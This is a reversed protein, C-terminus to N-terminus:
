RLYLRRRRRITSRCRDLLALKAGERAFGLATASGIEKAAGTILVVKGALGTDM